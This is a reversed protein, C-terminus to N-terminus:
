TQRKRSVEIQDLYFNNDINSKTSITPQVDTSVDNTKAEHKEFLGVDTTSEPRRPADYIARTQNQTDRKTKMNEKIEELVNNTWGPALTMLLNLFHEDLDNIFLLIVANTVLDTNKRALAFNYKSSTFVGLTTLILIGVGSLLLQFDSSELAYIIQVIGLALDRGLYLLVVIYFLAWGDRGVTSEDDCMLSNDPCRFNFQFDSDENLLNSADLYTAFLWIQITATILYLLWALKKKSLVFCYVSDDEYITKPDRKSMLDNSINTQKIRLIIFSLIMVVFPVTLVVVATEPRIPIWFLLQEQCAGESNCCMTCSKCDIAGTSLVSPNGCDTIFTDKSIEHFDIQPATGSLQNDHLHLMRIQKINSLQSPITGKLFNGNMSLVTANELNAIQTPIKGTLQNSQLMLIELQAAKFLQVPISGSLRNQHFDARILSQLDGITPPLFGSFGNQSVDIFKLKKCTFM